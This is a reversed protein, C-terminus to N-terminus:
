NKKTEEPPRSFNGRAVGTGIVIAIVAIAAAISVSLHGLAGAAAVIAGLIAIAAGTRRTSATTM